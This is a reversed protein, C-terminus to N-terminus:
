FVVQKRMMIIFIYVRLLFFSLFGVDFSSLLFMRFGATLVADHVPQFRLNEEKGVTGGM